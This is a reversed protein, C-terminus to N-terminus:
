PTPSPSVPYVRPIRLIQCDVDDDILELFGDADSGVAAVVENGCSVDDGALVPEAGERVRIGIRNEAVQERRLLAEGSRGRGRCRQWLAVLLVIGLLLASLAVSRSCGRSTGIAARVRAGSRGVPEIRPVLRVERLAREISPTASPAAAARSRLWRAIMADFDDASSMPTRSM